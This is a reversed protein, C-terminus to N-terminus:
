LMNIKLAEFSYPSLEFTNDLIDKLIERVRHAYTHNNLVHDKAKTRIDEIKEKNNVIFKLIGNLGEITDNYPIYHEWPNMLKYIGCKKLVGQDAWLPVCGMAASEFIRTGINHAIVRDFVMKCRNMEDVYDQGWIDTKVLTKYEKNNKLWDLFDNKTLNHRKRQGDRRGIIGVDIDRKIGMDKHIEPNCAEPLWKVNEYGQTNLTETEQKSALYIRDFCRTLFKYYEAGMIHADWSYMVRPNVYWPIKHPEYRVEVFFYLDFGLPLTNISEYSFVKVDCGANKFGDVWHDGYSHYKEKLSNNIVAIRLRRYLPFFETM